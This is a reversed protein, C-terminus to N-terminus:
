NNADDKQKYVTFIVALDDAEILEVIVFYEGKTLAMVEDSLNTSQSEYVLHRDNQSYVRVVCRTSKNLSGQLAFQYGCDANVNFTFVTIGSYHLVFQTELSLYSYEVFPIIDSFKKGNVLKYYDQTENTSSAFGFITENYVYLIGFETHITYKYTKNFLGIEDETLAVFELCDIGNVDGILKSDKGFHETATGNCNYIIFGNCQEVSNYGKLTPISELEFFRQASIDDQNLGYAYFGNNFYLQKITGDSLIFDITFSSGGDVYTEEREVYQIQLSAYKGLVDAIVAKDTTRSIDKLRGPAVGVYEFTTKIEAVDKSELELLWPAYEHLFVTIDMRYDCDDCKGDKNGDSHQAFNPPTMCGCTYSWSHGNEDQYNQYTHEHEPMVYGCADCIFNNDEDYHAVTGEQTDPCGCTYYQYHGIEGASTYSYTHKHLHLNGHVAKLADETFAIIIEGSVPSRSEFIITIKDGEVYGGSSNVPMEDDATFEGLPQLTNIVTDKYNISLAGEELNIQYYIAGEGLNTRELEFSSTEGIPFDDFTFVASNEYRECKLSEDYGPKREFIDCATLCCLFLVVTLGLTLFKKM